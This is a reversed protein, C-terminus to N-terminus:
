RKVAYGIYLMSTDSTLAMKAEAGLEGYRIEGRRLRRLLRVLQLPSATPMLGTRDRDELGHRAMVEVLELPRIFQRSHRLCNETRVPVIKWPVLIGRRVQSNTTKSIHALLSPTAARSISRM